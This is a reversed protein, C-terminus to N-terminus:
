RMKVGTITIMKDSSFDGEFIEEFLEKQNEFVNVEDWNVFLKPFDPKGDWTEAHVSMAGQERESQCNEPTDFDWFDDAPQNRLIFRKAAELEMVKAELTAKAWEQLDKKAQEM